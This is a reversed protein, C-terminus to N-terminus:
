MTLITAPDTSGLAQSLQAYDREITASAPEDAKLCERFVARIGTKRAPIADQVLQDLDQDKTARLYARLLAIEDRNRAVLLETLLAM